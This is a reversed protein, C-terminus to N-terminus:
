KVYTEAMQTVTAFLVNDYARGKVEEYKGHSEVYDTVIERARVLLQGRRKPNTIRKAAWLTALRTELTAAENEDMPDESGPTQYHTSQAVPENRTRRTPTYPELLGPPALPVNSTDVGLPRRAHDVSTAHGRSLTPLEPKPSDLINCSAM